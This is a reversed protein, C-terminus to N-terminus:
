QGAEDLPGFVFKGELMVAEIRSGVELPDGSMFLLNADKGIELSGIREELGLLGAPELTVARLAVERDVGTAVVSGVDRLWDRHDALSDRRPIFVLKAGAKSLEAALNRQRMTGPHLSISPEMVIRCEREGIQDAVEFINLSRTVPLRLDWSFEEEGVADLLHM